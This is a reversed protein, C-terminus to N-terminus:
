TGYPTTKMTVKQRTAASRETPAVVTDRTTGDPDEEALLLPALQAKMHWRVYEALMCIFFHTEIRRRTFPHIPRVKLDDTKLPRFAPEVKSLQKYHDVVTEASRDPKPVNTRIAYLGDLRAPAQLIAEKRQYTFATETITVDFYPTMQHQALLGGARRARQTAAVLQDLKKETRELRKVRTHAQQDAQLPNRCWILREGPFDESEM